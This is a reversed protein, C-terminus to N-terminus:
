APPAENKPKEPPLADISPTAEAKPAPLADPMPKQEETKGQPAPDGAVEQKPLELRTALLVTLEQARGADMAAMVAGIKVPKMKSAVSLMIKRDLKDFIKAADAPKMNEYMKVLSAMQADQEADRQGLMTNIRAEIKSLEAIREEVRGEAAALTHERLSLLKEREDLTERRKSLSNLVDGEGRTTIEEATAASKAMAAAPAAPPPTPAADAVLAPEASASLIGPANLGAVLAAAKFIGALVAVGIVSPLLRISAM